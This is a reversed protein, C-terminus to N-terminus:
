SFAKVWGEVVGQADKIYDLHSFYDMHGLVESGGKLFDHLGDWNFKLEKEGNLTGEPVVEVMPNQIFEQIDGLGEALGEFNKTIKAGRFVNVIPEPVSWSYRSMVKCRTGKCTYRYKLIELNFKDDPTYDTAFFSDAFDFAGDLELKGQDNLKFGMESLLNKKVNDLTFSYGENWKGANVRTDIHGGDKAFGLSAISCVFAVTDSVEKTVDIAKGWGAYADNTSADGMDRKGWYESLKTTNGYYRAAGLNGDKNNFINGSQSLAKGNDMVEAVSNVTTIVAGVCTAVAGICGIVIPLTAGGSFPIAIIAVVAGAIAAVAGVVSLVINAIYKGDGYKFWDVIPELANGVYNEVINVADKIWRGVDSINAIDVCFTNYLFDGVAQYWTRDGVFADALATIQNEANQDEAKGTSVLNTVATAYNSFREAKSNLSNIKSWALDSATGVYGYSDSGPLDTIPDTIIKKINEVYQDIQKKAETAAKASAELNSYHIYIKAM